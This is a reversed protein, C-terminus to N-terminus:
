EVWVLNIPYATPAPTTGSIAWAYWDREPCVNVVTNGRGDRYAETMARLDRVVEGRSLVIVRQGTLSSLQAPQQSPAQDPIEPTPAQEGIRDPQGASRTTQSAPRPRTAPQPQSAPRARRIPPAQLSVPGKASDAAGPWIATEDAPQEIWVHEIPVLVALAEVRKIEARYYDLEALVPIHTDDSPRDTRMDYRWGTGAVGVIARRGRIDLVDAAPVPVIAAPGIQQSTM